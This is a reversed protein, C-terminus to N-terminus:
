ATAKKKERIGVTVDTQRESENRIMLELKDGLPELRAPYETIDQKDEPFHEDDIIWTPFTVIDDHQSSKMSVLVHDTDDDIITTITQQGNPELTITQAEGM